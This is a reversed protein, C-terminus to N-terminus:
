LFIYMGLDNYSLRFPVNAPVPRKEPDRCTYTEVINIANRKYSAPVNKTGDRRPPIDSEAVPIGGWAPRNKDYLPKMGGSRSLSLQEGSM